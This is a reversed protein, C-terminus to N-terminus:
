QDPDLTTGKIMTVRPSDRLIITLQGKLEVKTTNATLTEAETTRDPTIKKEKIAEKNQIKPDPEIMKSEEAKADKTERLDIRVELGTTEEINKVTGLDAVRDRRHVVMLKM